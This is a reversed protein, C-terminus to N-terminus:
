FALIKGTNEPLRDKLLEMCGNVITETAEPRAIRGSNAAMEALLTTDALLDKIERGLKEGDLESEKFMLGGGAEVLYRGNIEQHNDAAFPFPVLIAPKHFVTLEALTTAGARSVVLDARSYIEAMDSFFAQVRANIGLEAYKRRVATEDQEGTQHIIDPLPQNGLLCKEVGELILTNLRHAGQSGGLILLTLPEQYKRRGPQNAAKIIASRVPNGSLVTKAAPFYKESGPLSVFIRHAVHGLLRNALGPISNQEHICTTIGLLRAALIVPGTVYGGVGFVLAPRFKRIIRAAELFAAPQQLIAKIKAALSRGKLGQSKIAVTAFGLDALASKDVKRETGIFLIDCGPYTRMMAQGLAIGPFLHGGTGGGTIILRMNHAKEDKM